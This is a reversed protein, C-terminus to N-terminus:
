SLYSYLIESFGHPGNNTLSALAVPYLVAIASLGLIILPFILVFLMALKVDYSEIKKGLYEPTRGVMLGAIFVSLVVFILMGYLGSGVGGFVVEGLMINVMLVMGGLPTFSDHASNVAGCSTDTTATAFLASQSIGNRVEKGELNAGTNILTTKQDVGHLLPHPQSEAWYCVTYAAVFLIVMASFVAWGHGSSGTMKGLTVTLAAPILLILEMEIFNSFPTPNEFPHASNAGFFGGGNTGLEKIVEQSAVPGQGLSQAGHQLTTIATYPHLNQIVGQGILVPAVVLCIPLLIWLIVRTTDVWFNGITTSQKRAIGRVLAVAVAIGIAASLFNHYALGVMQTFYSMTTEPMYSQWNTNTTFSVATNFALAPSVGALHQPNWPLLGQAREIVYTLLLSVFSVILMAVSYQQWSMEQEAQISCARYIFRELPRLLPDLFTKEGQVVRAIYLGLPRMLLLLVALFAFFQLWGNATM